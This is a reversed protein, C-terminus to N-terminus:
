IESIKEVYNIKIATIEIQFHIVKYTEIIM